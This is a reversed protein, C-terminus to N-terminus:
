PTATITVNYAGAALATATVLNTGSLTFSGASAGSLVLVGQWGTPAVAISGVTVGSAIPGAASFATGSGSFPSVPTFTLGTSVPGSVTIVLSLTAM